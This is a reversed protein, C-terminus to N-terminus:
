SEVSALSLEIAEKIMQAPIVSTLGSNEEFVVRPRGTQASLAVEQQPVYSQVVGLLYSVYHPTTGTIHVVEPKSIVPGGSNGPNVQADILFESSHGALFDGIRAICGQRVIVHNRQTGVLGLPFGLVFVGDGEAVGSDKCTARDAVDSTSKFCYYDMGTKVLVRIDIPIIALDIELRPHSYWQQIGEDNVTLLKLDKPPHDELPNFRVWIEKNLGIVHKNTILARAGNESDLFHEYLFGSGIWSKSGDPQLVGIAVTANLYGPPVLAM